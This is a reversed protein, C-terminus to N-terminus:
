EQGTWGMMECTTHRIAFTANPNSSYSDGMIDLKRHPTRNKLSAMKQDVLIDFRIWKDEDAAALTQEFSQTTGNPPVMAAYAMSRAALVRCVGQFPFVSSSVSGGSLVRFRIKSYGGLREIEEFDAVMIKKNEVEVDKIHIRVLESSTCGLLLIPTIFLILARM